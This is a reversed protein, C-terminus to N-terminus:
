KFCGLGVLALALQEVHSPPLIGVLHARLPHHVGQERLQRMPQAAAGLQSVEHRRHVHAVLSSICGKWGRGVKNAFRKNALPKDFFVRGNGPQVGLAYKGSM